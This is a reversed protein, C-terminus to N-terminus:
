GKHRQRLRWAVFGLAPLIASGDGPAHISNLPAAGSIWDNLAIEFPTDEAGRLGGRLQHCDNGVIDDRCDLEIQTYDALNGGYAALRAAATPVADPDNDGYIDLVPVDIEDLTFLHNLPDISNANMGVGIYGIIPLDGPQQGRAVHALSLRSGLSMGGLVIREISQSAMFAIAEGIRAYTEPFVTDPGQVDAVYDSFDTSSGNLNADAPVPNQISLTAYGANAFTTRMERVVLSNPTAGRGHMMIIGVGGGSAGERYLGAFGGGPSAFSYCSTAGDAPTGLPVAACNILTAAQGPALVPLPFLIQALLVLAAARLPRFEPLAFIM